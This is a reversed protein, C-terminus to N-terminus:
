PMEDREGSSNRISHSFSSGSVRRRSFDTQDQRETNNRGAEVFLEGVVGEQDVREESHGFDTRSKQGYVQLVKPVM